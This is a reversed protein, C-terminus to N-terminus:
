RNMPSELRHVLRRAQYQAPTLGHHIQEAMQSARLPSCDDHDGMVLSHDLAEIPDIVHGIALNGIM